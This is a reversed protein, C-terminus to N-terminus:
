KSMLKAVERAAAVAGLGSGFANLASNYKGGMDLIVLTLCAAGLAADTPIGTDGIEAYKVSLVGALAGGAVTAAAHVTQEAIREAHKKANDRVAALRKFGAVLEDKSKREIAASM